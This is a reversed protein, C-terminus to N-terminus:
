VPPPALRAVVPGWQIAVGDLVGVVTEGELARVDPKGYVGEALRCVTVHRDVPHVFWLERVGAREYLRRKRVHDHSATSPSTVEGAFDPAGQVGRADIQAPDCVVLVDPQVVDSVDEDREHGKPLRVDIPAIAAECRKGELARRLQYAIELVVRQHDFTPPPSMAYAVGDILEWRQGDDWTLYEGYTHRAGDRQPLGM